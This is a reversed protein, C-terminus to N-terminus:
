QQVQIRDLKPGERGVWEIGVCGFMWSELGGGAEDVFGLTEM